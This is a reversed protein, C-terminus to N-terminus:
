VLRSKRDIRADIAKILKYLQKRAPIIRAELREFDPARLLGVAQALYMDSYCESSSGFGMDYFRASDRDGSYGSGEAIDAAVSRAARRMQATIGYREEPPFTKTVNYVEVYLDRASQWARLKTFTQM